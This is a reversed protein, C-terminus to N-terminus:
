PEYGFGRMWAQAAPSKLYQALAMAAAPDQASRLVLADQRLPSHLHAPVLWASGDKVRGGEMIQSLAVFGLEANGSAVFSYAQGISEGQVFKAKLSEQLGLAALTQLAAQGYPALAPAALALKNFTGAKLVSGQADVLSSSASWLALRGTAYTFRSSQSALGDQELRAATAQDASVFMDFPAGNKIQAYLKGTSGVSLVVQHMSSAEFERAIIKMPAAFNAAVAVRVQGAQSEQSYAMSVWLCCLVGLASMCRQLFTPFHQSAMTLCFNLGAVM